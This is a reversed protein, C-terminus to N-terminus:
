EYIEKKVLSDIKRERDHFRFTEDITKDKSKKRDRKIILNLFLISLKSLIM